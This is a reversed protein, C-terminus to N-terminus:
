RTTDKVNEGVQRIDGGIKEAAGRAELKRDRSVRGASRKTRGTFSQLANRAKDVMSM